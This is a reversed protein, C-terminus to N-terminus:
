KMLEHFIENNSERMIEKLQGEKMYSLETMKPGVRLTIITKEKETELMVSYVLTKPKSGVYEAGFTAKVDTEGPKIKELVKLTESTAGAKTFSRAAVSLIVLAEKINEHSKMETAPFIQRFEPLHEDELRFRPAM